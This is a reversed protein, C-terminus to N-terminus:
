AEGKKRWKRKERLLGQECRTSISKRRLSRAKGRLKKHSERQEPALKSETEVNKGGTAHGGLKTMVSSVTGQNPSGRGMNSAMEPPWNGDASGRGARRKTPM